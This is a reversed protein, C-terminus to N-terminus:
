FRPTGPDMGLFVRGINDQLSSLLSSLLAALERPPSNSKAGDTPM